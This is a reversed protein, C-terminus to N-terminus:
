VLIWAVPHDIQLNDLYWKRGFVSIIRAGVAVHDLQLLPPHQYPAAGDVRIGYLDLALTSLHLTFNQLQVRVGLKQSAERQALNILYRHVGDTNVFAVLGVACALILLAFSGAIWGFIHWGRHMRRHRGPPPNPRPNPPESSEFHARLTNM